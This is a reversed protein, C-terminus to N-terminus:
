KEGKENNNASPLENTENESHDDVSKKIVNYGVVGSSLILLLMMQMLEEMLEVGGAQNKIALYCITVADILLVVFIAALIIKKSIRGDANYSSYIKLFNSWLDKNIKKNEM